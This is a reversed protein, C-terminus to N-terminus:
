RDHWAECAAGGDYTVAFVTGPLVRRSLPFDLATCTLAVCNTGLTGVVRDRYRDM